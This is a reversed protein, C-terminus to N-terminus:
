HGSSQIWTARFARPLAHLRLSANRTAFLVQGMATLLRAGSAAAVLPGVLPRTSSGPSASATADLVGPKSSTRKLFRMNHCWLQRGTGRVRNHIYVQSYIMDIQKRLVHM